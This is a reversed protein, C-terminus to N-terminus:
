EYTWASTGRVFITMDLAGKFGALGEKATQLGRPPILLRAYRLLQVLRAIGEIINTYPILSNLSCTLQFISGHLGQIRFGTVGALELHRKM